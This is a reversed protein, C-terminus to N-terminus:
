EDQEGEEQSGTGFLFDATLFGSADGTFAEAEGDAEAVANGGAGQAIRKIGCAILFTDVTEGEEDVGVLVAELDVRRDGVVHCVGGSGGGVVRMVDVQGFGGGAAALVCGVDGQRGSAAVHRVDDGYGVERFVVVVVLDDGPVAQLVADNDPGGGVQQGGRGAGGSFHRRACGARVEGIGGAAGERHVAVGTLFQHFFFGVGEGEGEFAQNGADVDGVFGVLGAHGGGVRFAAEQQGGDAHQLGARCTVDRRLGTVGRGVDGRDAVPLHGVDGVAFRGGGVRGDVRGALRIGDVNGGGFGIGGQLVEPAGEVGVLVAVGFMGRGGELYFAVEAARLYGAADVKDVGVFLRDGEDAVVAIQYADEGSGAM